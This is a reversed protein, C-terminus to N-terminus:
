VPLAKLSPASPAPRSSVLEADLELIQGAQVAGARRHGYRVSDFLDAAQALRRAHDPFPKALALSVEHATRGPADNLVRRDSMDKAIARFGDLVADDYRADRVARAALERYGRATIAADELVAWEPDRRVGPDRRVRPLVWGLLTIVVLAILVTLVPSLGALHGVGDLIRRTQDVVWRIVTDLWSGQYEPGRLEQRLWSRAEPPTPSLGRGPSYHALTM